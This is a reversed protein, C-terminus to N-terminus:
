TLELFPDIFWTTSAKAAYIQAVMSGAAQPQAYTGGDFAFSIKFRCGARFVAAGDTVSGGDVATAYGGPESGSAAGGTTCFFIRGPNSALKIIDGVSYTHSNVRATAAGDWASTDATLNVPTDLFSNVRNQARSSKSSSATGLWDVAAFLEANTPVAAANIIGYVTATVNVSANPNYNSFIPIHGPIAHSVQANTTAKLSIGDGNISAGGTRVASLEPVISISVDGYWLRNLKGDNGSATILGFTTQQKATSMPTTDIMTGTAPLKCNHMLVSHQIGDPLRIPTTCFSWDCGRCVTVGDGFGSSGGVPNFINTPQTGGSDISCNIFTETYILMIGQNAHGFKWVCNVFIHRQTGSFGYWWAITSLSTSIEFRCNEFYFGSVGNGFRASLGGSSGNQIFTMGYIRAFGNAALVDTSPGSGEKAGTSMDGTTPTSGAYAESICIIDVPATMTGKTTTSVAGTTVASAWNHSDGVFYVPQTSGAVGDGWNTGQANTLHHHPAAFAAYRNSSDKLTTWVAAGDATTGGQAAWTPEAGSGAAGSTTCILLKTGDGSKIVHGLSPTTSKAGATWTPTNGVDGNMGAVGTCEMWTVTNDTTKTGRTLTWTPETTAHTTGGVICVWARESGEAPAALQRVLDGVAKVTGTAWQTVAAHKNTSVFWARQGTFVM